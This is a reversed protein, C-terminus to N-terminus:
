CRPKQSPSHISQRSLFDEVASEIIIDSRKLPSKLYLSEMSRCRSLAVYTQGSAFAGQSLDIIVADYTQGQSKHISIAWALRIPFQKFTSTVNSGLSNSGSNYTYEIKEWTVREVQYENDGIAIFVSDSTLRSVIALTGNVWRKPYERDNSVMMVQAGIKLHLSQETPCYKSDFTGTIEAEFVFVAGPLKSLEKSNLSNVVKNLSALTVIQKDKPPAITRTNIRELLEETVNGIRISDLIQIFKEDHQRYVHNLECIKFSALDYVPANFFYIGGFNQSYFEKVANTMVFPPLQYLDGFLVIQTGGFPRTDNKSIQFRKNIAEFVDAKVMSIEDIVLVDINRLIEKTSYSVRIQESDHPNQPKTDLRFLSHITQGNVNIAAVGTPAVVAVRKSTNKVLHRLLVSKGTGAKGTVFVNENTGEILSFVAYQEKGLMAEHTSVDEKLRSDGDSTKTSFQSAYRELAERQPAFWQSSLIFSREKYHLVFRYYRSRGKSDARQEVVSEGAKIERLVPFNWSTGFSAHCFSPNCLDVIDDDTLKGEGILAQFISQALKGVKIRGDDGKRNVSEEMRQPKSLRNEYLVKADAATSARVQSIRHASFRMRQFASSLVNESCTESFSTKVAELIHAEGQESLLFEILTNAILVEEQEQILRSCYQSLGEVSFSDKSLNQILELGQANDQILPLDLIKEPGNNNSPNDFFLQVTGGILLGFRLKLQLMYSVLQQSHRESVDRNPKKLEVVFLKENDEQIIIDPILNQAAGIPIIVQSAIEGRYRSWGLKEFINEVEIQFDNESTNMNSHKNILFCIENWQEM